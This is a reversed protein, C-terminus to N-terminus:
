RSDDVLGQGFFLKWLRNVMVRAPLPNAALGAVRGPRAADRPRRRPRSGPFLVQFAQCSSRARKM